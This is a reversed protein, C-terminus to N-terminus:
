KNLLNNIEDISGMYSGKYFIWLDENNNYELKLYKLIDNYKILNELNVYYVKYEKEDLLNELYRNKNGVSIITYDKISTLYDIMNNPKFLSNPVYNINNNIFSYSISLLSLIILALYIM